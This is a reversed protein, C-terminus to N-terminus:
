IRENKILEILQDLEAPSPKINGITRLFAPMRELLENDDLIYDPLKGQSISAHDRMEEYEPSDFKIDLADAIRKLTEEQTPAKLLNREIKSWNSPDEKILGCFERLTLDKNLRRNKIWEGFM